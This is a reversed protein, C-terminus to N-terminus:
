ENHIEPDGYLSSKQHLIHDQHHNGKMDLRLSDGTLHCQRKSCGDNELDQIKLPRSIDLIQALRTLKSFTMSGYKRWTNSVYAFNKQDQAYYKM